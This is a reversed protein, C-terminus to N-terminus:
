LVREIGGCMLSAAWYVVGVSVARGFWVGAFSKAEGAKRWLLVGGAGMGIAAPFWFAYLCLAILGIGAVVSAAMTLLILGVDEWRTFMGPLQNM